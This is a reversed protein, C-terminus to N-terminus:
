PQRKREPSQKLDGLDVPAVSLPTHETVRRGLYNSKNPGTYTVWTVHYKQGIILSKIEFKGDSDTTTKGGYCDQFPATEDGEHIRIGYSIEQEALPQGAEDLLRGSASALPGITMATSPTDEGIEVLGALKGDESVAHIVTRHLQRTVNFVGAANTMAEFPRHSSQHRYVSTVKANVVPKNEATKVLGELPGAEPRPAEFNFELEQEDKIEFKKIANQSPGRIDFKGPGVFLEFYGEADTTANHVIMPCVWKHSDKPNPLKIEPLKLLDLGYQYSDIRFDKVPQKDPGQTVRGYLRTAPRMKFDINDVPQNPWVAFGTRPDSAVKPGSAVVLYIMNPAVKLEYQGHVDTLAENKFDDFQYGEGSAMIKIGAAPSGDAHTAKGRLPVLRNLTMNLTGDGKEPDYEGRQDFYDETVPWFTLSKKQWKPIWDFIVEGQANSTGIFHDGLFGVNLDGPQDPKQLFWPYSLVGPIPAGSVEQMRVRVPSVGDLILTLPGDPLRPIKVNRDSMREPSVSFSRYDLGVGRKCAYAQTVPMTSPLMLVARGQEDSLATDSPVLIGAMGCIAGQIPQGSQDVVIIEARRAQTLELKLETKEVEAPEEWPPMMIAAQLQKDPSAARISNVRMYKWPATIEFRGAQDTTAEWPAGKWMTAAVRIGVAPKGDPAAVTGRVTVQPEQFIPKSKSPSTKKGLEEKSSAHPRPAEFNLELETEGKIEFQEKIHKEFPNRIDFKGDGVFLEYYGDKDTTISHTFKPRVIGQDQDPNPLKVNDLEQLDVGFHNVVIEAGKVPSSDPDQTLRGHLRTAPRMTFDLNEIPQGPWVAFGTQPTSALKEGSATLMYIMNPDVKLEYRGNANTMTTGRFVDDGHDEGIASIKIGPAPSGDRNTVKGRLPVLHELTMTFTGGGTDPAYVSRHRVYGEKTPWLALKQKQWQPIWDFVVEGQSDSTASFQDQLDNLNLQETQGPKMLLWPYVEVGSIANGDMGTVRVRLPQVGDLTMKQPTDPLEPAIADPDDRRQPPLVYARYDFGIGAKYAYVYDVRITSPYKLVSRGQDDSKMSDLAAVENTIGCNAGVVPKGNQDVVHVEVRRAPSLELRVKANEFRTEKRPLLTVAQLQGDRDYARVLGNLLSAQVATIEFRGTSDTTTERPAGKWVTAAVRVGAVPKGDPDVVTGRVTIQPEAATPPSPSPTSDTSAASTQKEAETLANPKSAPPLIAEALEPSQTAIKQRPGAPLLTAAAVLVVAMASWSLTRGTPLRPDLIRRMRQTIHSGKEVVGITMPPAPRLTREALKLIASGYNRRNGELLGVTAEDCAEERLRRLWRDALWVGPHFFYLAKLVAQLVSSLVDLRRVHQLEHILVTELEAHTLNQQIEPPLLIVPQWAGVLLPTEVEASQHIRISARVGVRERCEALMQNLTTENMPTSRHILQRVQRQGIVLRALMVGVGALWGALLWTRVPWNSSPVPALPSSLSPTHSEAVPLTQVDALPGVYEPVMESPPIPRQPKSSNETHTIVDPPRPVERAPLVWWAWGTALALTPPLILRVPVLSWLLYRLKASHRRLLWGLVLLVTVLIVVQWSMAAMWRFWIDSWPNHFAEHATNM